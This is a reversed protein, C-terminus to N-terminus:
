NQPLQHAPSRLKPTVSPSFVKVVDVYTASRRKSSAPSNSVKVKPLIQHSPKLGSVAPPHSTFLEHYMIPLFTEGDPYKIPPLGYGGDLNEFQSKSYFAPMNRCLVSIFIHIFGNKKELIHTHVFYTFVM